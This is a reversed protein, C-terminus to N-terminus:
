RRAQELLGDVTSATSSIDEPVPVGASECIAAGRALAQSVTTLWGLWDTPATKAQEWADVATEAEAVSDRALRLAEVRRRHEAVCERVVDVDESELCGSDVYADRVATDAAAVGDAASLVV